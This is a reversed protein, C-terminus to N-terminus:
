SRDVPDLAIWLAPRVPRAGDRGVTNVSGSTDVMAATKSDHGPSRLWWECCGSRLDVYCGQTETYITPICMTQFFRRYEEVERISLLFVRDETDHGPDIHFQDNEHAIVKATLIRIQEEETFAAHLFQGNLWTRLTCSEWTVSTDETNYPQYDLAYRSIVLIRDVEKELVLWEIPENDTREDNDQEYRGFLVVDGVQARTAEVPKETKGSLDIWMAPRVAAFATIVTGGYMDVAGERGVLATFDAYRGPSRLWWWCSNNGSDPYNGQTKAYATLECRRAEDSPFYEKADEISLLFVKSWSSHLIIYKRDSNRSTAVGTEDYHPNRAEDSFVTPIMAQEDATFAANLFEGNLWARLSCLNWSTNEWETHFPRCDLAYLSTVLLRGDEKGLVLWEVPEPGNSLDNNQEYRGFTIIDGVEASLLGHEEVSGAAFATDSLSLLLALAFFFCINKEYAREKRKRKSIDAGQAPSKPKRSKREEKIREALRRCELWVSCGLFLVGVLLLALHNPLGKVKVHFPHNQDYYIKVTGGTRMGYCYDDTTSEFEMGDVTYRVFVEYSLLHGNLYSDIDTVVASTFVRNERPIETRDRIIIFLLVGIIASFAFISGVIKWLTEREPIRDM